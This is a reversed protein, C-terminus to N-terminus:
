STVERAVPSQDTSKDGIPAAPAAGAVYDMAAKRAHYRKPKATMEVDILGADALEKVWREVQQREPPEPFAAVIDSLTVGDPRYIMATVISSVVEPAINPAAM